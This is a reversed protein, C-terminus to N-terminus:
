LDDLVYTAALAAGSLLVGVVTLVEVGFVLGAVCLAVSLVACGLV